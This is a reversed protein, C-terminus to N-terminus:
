YGKPLGLVNQAVYSLVLNNGIPAAKLLQIAQLLHQLGLTEDFARAGLATTAADLAKEALEVSLFKAANAALANEKTVTKLFETLAVERVKVEALPYQVGQYAGIPSDGFVKRSKAEECGIKLCFRAVGLLQYAILIREVNFSTLM